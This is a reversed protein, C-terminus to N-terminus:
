PAESWTRGRLLAEFFRPPEIIKLRVEQLTEGNITISLAGEGEVRALANVSITRTKMRRVRGGFPNQMRTSPKYCEEVDEQLSALNGGVGVSHGWIPRKKRVLVAMVAGIIRQVSPEVARMHSRALVLREM